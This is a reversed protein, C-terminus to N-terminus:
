MLSARETAVGEEADIMRQVDRIARLHAEIQIPDALDEVDLAEDRTSLAFSVHSATDGCRLNYGNPALSNYSAILATESRRINEGTGVVLVKVTMSHFGYTQIARRVLACASTASAHQRMRRKFNCTRGIYVMPGGNPSREANNVIAYVCEADDDSRARKSSPKSAAPRRSPEGRVEVKWCLVATLVHLQHFLVINLPTSSYWGHSNDDTHTEYAQLVARLARLDMDVNLARDYQPANTRLYIRLASDETEMERHLRRIPSTQTTIGHEKNFGMLDELTVEKTPAQELWEAYTKGTRERIEDDNLRMRRM